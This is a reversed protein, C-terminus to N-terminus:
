WACQTNAVEQSISSKHYTGLTSEEGATLKYLLVTYLLNQVATVEVNVHLQMERSYIIHHQLHTLQLLGTEKMCM